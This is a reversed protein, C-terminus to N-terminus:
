FVIMDRGGKKLFFILVTYRFFFNHHIETDGDQGLQSFLHTLDSSLIEFAERTRMKKQRDRM